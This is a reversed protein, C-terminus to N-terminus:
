AVRGYVRDIRLRIVLRRDRAMVDFFEEHDPHPEKRITEYIELLERGVEDAPVTSPPSLEARGDAVVFRGFDDSTVHLSVRDDRAINRAKVTSSPVSIRAVGDAYGYVINSAQPRGDPRLTILVGRMHDALFPAAQALEM